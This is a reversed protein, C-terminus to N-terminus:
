LSPRSDNKYFSNSDVISQCISAEADDIMVFGCYRKDKNELSAKLRTKIDQGLMYPQPYSPSKLSHSLHNIKLTHENNFQSNLNEALLIKGQSIEDVNTLWGKNLGKTLDMNTVKTYRDQIAVKVFNNRFEIQACAIEDLSKANWARLDFFLSNDEDLRSFVLVKGTLERITPWKNTVRSPAFISGDSLVGTIKDMIMANVRRRETADSSKSGQQQFIMAVFETKNKILWSKIIDLQESLKINFVIAGHCMYIDDDKKGFYGDYKYHAVRMDLVRVGANLQAQIDLQQTITLVPMSSVGTFSAADHAGPIALDNIRTDQRMTGLWSDLNPM